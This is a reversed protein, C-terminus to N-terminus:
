KKKIKLTSLSDRISKLLDKDSGVLKLEILKNPEIPIWIYEFHFIIGKHIQPMPVVSYLRYATHGSVQIEEIKPKNTARGTVTKMMLTKIEKQTIKSYEIINGEKRSFGVSRIGINLQRFPTYRNDKGLYEIIPALGSYPDDISSSGKKAVSLFDPKTYSILDPVIVESYGLASLLCLISLIRFLTKMNNNALTSRV